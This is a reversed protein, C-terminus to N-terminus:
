RTEDDEENGLKKAAEKQEANFKDASRKEAETAKKFETPQNLVVQPYPISIDYKDFLLKMERNLDRELQLRDGETCQVVIRINVSNDGLSVVGKYFPGDIIAPLRKRIFPLEKSLINEVRELSEGYEIGVDCSAYSTEKTMNIVNSIESNRIVKINQAGDEVKTTRVGIEVVTGRWDGVMIIDGVRFEGEFIIFLGSLIDAVLEKAGFSIAISLIGASALLTTTDVGILALSYYVMGIITAYKIFSSLLRCVTEGRAGLVTSLVGLLWQILAVITMAVCIFMVCATIAFINLGREWNESLIYSFISGSGFITDQFMVAFCVALVSVGLLLRMAFATKQEATKERWGLKKVLWRSTASETRVTRGGPMTVDIMRADEKAEKAAELEQAEAARRPEFTILLFVLLLCVLAVGGTALTLPVRQAMMEGEGGAVYVYYQDTETSSAYYKTGNVTLYDNFGAKVQNETMGCSVAAKGILAKDPFYAFTGDAKAIAFAFGDTGVHVGELVKDVQLSNMLAELREPRLSIQVLGDVEGEANHLPLGIYQRLEGTLDDIMPDQVLYEAGQLLKRFAYSQANPDESLTYNTYSSNTVALNGTSDFVFTYQIQLADSLEQLKQRDRLEPNADLIYAATRAKSLYRQGYQDRLSQAQENSAVATESIAAARESNSLSESSLAFLTQMYFSMGLIALVGVFSFVAAKVAIAKNFRVPGLDVYDEPDRKARENERIAFAGHLAVIAIVAFFVFLIVGVTVNRSSTMDSEPVACVYYTDDIRKVGCYLKEGGVTMQSYAGDSLNEVPIGADLADAGMLEPNPHYDILYDQASVAFVYGHQGITIDKLISELSSTSAVLERLEAPSQEIVVMTNADIADAYYRSLWQQDAIEVEVARSPKGTDFTERLYNFRGYTFNAHTEGAKALITGEKTVVMVNDVEFLDKYEAMKADTVEFGTNNNAMFALTDAKSKYVDDYSAKNQATEEDAAAIVGELQAAQDAIEQNCSEMSMDSQMSVLLWGMAFLSALVVVVLLGIRVKYSKSTKM